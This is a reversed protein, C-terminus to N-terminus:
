LQLMDAKLSLKAMVLKHGHTPQFNLEQAQMHDCDSWKIKHQKSNETLNIVHLM